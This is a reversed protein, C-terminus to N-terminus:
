GVLMVTHNEWLELLTATKGDTEKDVQAEMNNTTMINLNHLKYVNDHMQKEVESLFKKKKLKWPEM